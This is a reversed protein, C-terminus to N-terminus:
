SEEKEAIQAHEMLGNAIVYAQEPTVFAGVWNGAKTLSLFVEKGGDSTVFALRCADTIQLSMHHEGNEHHERLENM